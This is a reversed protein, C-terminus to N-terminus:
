VVKSNCLFLLSNYLIFNNCLQIFSINYLPSLSYNMQVEQAGAKVQSDQKLPEEKCPDSTVDNRLSTFLSLSFTEWRGETKEEEERGRSGTVENM